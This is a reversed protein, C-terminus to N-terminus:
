NLLQEFLKRYEEESLTSKNKQFLIDGEKNIGVTTAQSEVGFDLMVKPNGPAVPFQFAKDKALNTMVEKDDTPDISIAVFNVKDKYEPYAASIAPWNKACMPCWSATFYVVTPKNEALSQKLSVQAGTITTVEFQPAKKLEEKLATEVKEPTAEVANTADSKKFNCAALVMVVSLVLAYVKVPKIM